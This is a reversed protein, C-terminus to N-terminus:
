VQVTTITKCRSDAERAQAGRRGARGVDRNGGGKGRQDAQRAAEAPIGRGAAHQPHDGFVANAARQVGEPAALGARGGAGRGKLGEIEAEMARIREEITM